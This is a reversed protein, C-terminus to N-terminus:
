LKAIYWKPLRNYLWSCILFKCWLLFDNVNVGNDTKPKQKKM